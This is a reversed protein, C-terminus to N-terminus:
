SATLVAALNNLAHIVFVAWLSRTKLFVTGLVCGLVFLSGAALFFSFANPMMNLMLWGPFHIATFLFSSAAVAFLRGKSEFTQLLFSRFSLEEVFTAITIMKPLLSLGLQAANIEREQFLVAILLSFSLWLAGIVTGTLLGKGVNKTMGLAATPACFLANCIIFVPVAFIFVRVTENIFFSFPATLKQVGAYFFAVYLTWTAVLWFFFLLGYKVPIKDFERKM